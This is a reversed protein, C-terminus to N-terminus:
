QRNSRTNVTPLERIHTNVLQQGIRHRRRRRAMTKAWRKLTPRWFIFRHARKTGRSAAFKEHNSGVM